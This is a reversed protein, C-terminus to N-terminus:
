LWEFKKLYESVCEKWDRALDINYLQLKYNILHESRPRPAFYDEKIFNKLKPTSVRKVKVKRGLKLEKLIFKTLDFRSGGGLCVANYNGYPCRSVIAEMIKALDYTYTPTGFKDDVVFLEKSGAKIQKIIKNIFKKDKKPGGGMMWGPRLIWHQPLIEKVALEGAYKSAGYVNIPNAIDFDTYREKKGDYVGATSIHVMPIKLNKCVLAVYEAGLTNVRYAELPNKECYELDTLAALHIIIAPNFDHAQKNLEKFNTVDLKTLWPEVVVCDTAKIQAKNKFHNYVAEGLMGGCGTILIRKGNLNM